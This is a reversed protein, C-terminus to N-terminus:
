RAPSAGPQERAPVGVPEGDVFVAVEGAAEVVVRRAGPPLAFGFWEVGGGDGPVALVVPVVVGAEALEEGPGVGLRGTEPQPDELWSTDPLPHPRRPLHLAAPDGYQGRRVAVPAPEGDRRASWAGGGVVAGDVLVTAPAPGETLSIALEGDT